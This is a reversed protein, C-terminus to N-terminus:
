VYKRIKLGFTEEKFAIFEHLPIGEVNEVTPTIDCVKRFCFGQVKEYKPASFYPKVLANFSIYTQDTLSLCREFQKKNIRIWTHDVKESAKGDSVWIESLLISAVKEEGKHAVGFREIKAKVTVRTNEFKALNKRKM